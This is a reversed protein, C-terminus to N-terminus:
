SNLKLQYRWFVREVVANAYHSYFAIPGVWPITSKKFGQSKMDQLCLKLLIGGIGKGRLDPHTGMPGFWATGINNGNYASFAKIKGKHRAIFVAAPESYLATKVEHQWLKWEESVFILLEETDKETARSVIINEKKLFKLEKSIKFNQNKLDVTLNCTEDFKKFGKKEFFCLAPTYRPDIGPMFYNLPVDYVRIIDAKQKQFSEYVKNYLETGIGQRRNEKKVAFLKIYAYKVTEINRSVGQIFGIIKNNREAIFVTEKNFDPDSYLKEKLLTETFSDFESNSNLFDLVSKFDTDKYKRIKPKSM